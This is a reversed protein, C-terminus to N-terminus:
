VAAARRTQIVHNLSIEIGGGIDFGMETDDLVLGEGECDCSIWPETPTHPAPWQPSGLEEYNAPPEGPWEWVPQAVDIGWGTPERAASQRLAIEELRRGLEAVDEESLPQGSVAPESIQLHAFALAISPDAFQPGLSDFELSNPRELGWEEWDFSREAFEDLSPPTSEETTSAALAM